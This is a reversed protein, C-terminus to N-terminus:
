VELQLVGIFSPYAGPNQVWLVTPTPPTPPIVPTPPANELKTLRADLEKQKATIAAPDFDCGGIVIVLGLISLRVLLANM